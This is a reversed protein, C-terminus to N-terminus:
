PSAINLPDFRKTEKSRSAQIPEGDRRSYPFFLLPVKRLFAHRFIIAKRKALAVSMGLAAKS